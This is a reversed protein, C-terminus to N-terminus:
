YTQRDNLILRATSFAREIGASTVPIILHSEQIKYLNPLHSKSGNWFSYVSIGYTLIFNQRIGQYKWTEMFELFHYSQQYFDQMFVVFFGLRRNGMSSRSADYIARTKETDLLIKELGDLREDTFLKRNGIYQVVRAYTYNDTVLKVLEPFHYSYWERDFFM